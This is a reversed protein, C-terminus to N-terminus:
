KECRIFVTSAHAREGVEAASLETPASERLTPEVGARRLFGLAETGKVAFNVNQPIDGTRQAIRQANLKSVIVGLVNGQRDLLPGGSNGQQVPASIQFHQENNALGALASVEGTTLTPGAALLGALPFGYTVVSEGRRVPNARFPLIPGPDNPVALLALDRQVDVRAPMTAPLTRGNATRITIANCGDIVHHNTLVRDRAVVFGTGTSARGRGAQPPTGPSPAPATAGPPRPLPSQMSVVKEACIDMGRNIVERGDSLVMRFDFRCGANETPRINIGAGPALAGRTLMNAGWDQRGSRVAFLSHASHETQNLVRFPETQSLAPVPALLLAFLALILAPM